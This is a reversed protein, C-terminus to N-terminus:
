APALSARLRRVRDAAEAVRARTLRGRDIAEDVWEVIHQPLTPDINKTNLVMLMDNGAALARIVAERRDFLPVLAEMDLDDTMAIGAFGLKRRLLGNIIPESVTVPAGSPDVSTLRVNGTMVAQVRGSAILQAFPELEEESWTATIDPLSVHSDVTALGEGPFHKLVCAVGAKAFADIFAGAYSVVVVPDRSFSRGFHGIGPNGAAHL